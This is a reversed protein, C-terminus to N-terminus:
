PRTTCYITAPPQGRTAIHAIPQLGEPHRSVADAVVDGEIAIVYDAAASPRALAKDWILYNGENVVRRLHIGASQLAGVHSGTFMLVRSGPELKGLEHALLAEFAMRTASNVRAERLCIPVNRWANVYSGGIAGIVLLLVARQAARNQVLRRYAAFAVGTFLAIAPLLQLGYRVNYYSFPWWEPHFIPVGGYALSLMYFPVPMWLLLAPRMQTQTLAAAGGIVALLFLWWERNGAAMNMRAVKLFYLGATKMSNAGPHPPDGARATKEAIARASYPGTAFELANGYVAYNYALWSAPGLMMLLLFNRLAPRLRRRTEPHARTWSIGAAMVACAGLFWGDYRTLIACLFTAACKYLAMRAASEDKAQLSHVFVCLFYVAWIVTALFVSEIMGTSQMYLMNPNAAYIVAALRGAAPSAIEKGLRLIAVAGLVYAGMSPISGAIGSQWLKDSWVLPLTLLHPFPLWVTGLQLPGPTLSDIVRRAINIHAVADGYLLLQGTRFFYLFACVSMVVCTLGVAIEDSKARKLM